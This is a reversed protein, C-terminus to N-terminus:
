PSGAPCPQTAQTDAVPAGVAVRRNAVPEATRASLMITNAAVASARAASVMPAAHARFQGAVLFPVPLERGTKEVPHVDVVIGEVAWGSQDGVDVVPGDGRDALQVGLQTDVIPLPRHQVEHARPDTVKTGSGSLQHGQAHVRGFECRVLM